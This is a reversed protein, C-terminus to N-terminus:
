SRTKLTSWRAAKISSWRRRGSCADVVVLPRDSWSLSLSRALSSVETPLEWCVIQRGAIVALLYRHGDDTGGHELKIVQPAVLSQQEWHVDVHKPATGKQLSAKWIVQNRHRRVDAV